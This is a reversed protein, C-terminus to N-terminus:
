NKPEDNNYTLTIGQPTEGGDLQDAMSRFFRALEDPMGLTAYQGATCTVSMGTGKYGEVVILIVAKGQTWRQATFAEEHYRSQVGITKNKM